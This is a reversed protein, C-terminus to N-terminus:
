CLIIIFKNRVEEKKKKNTGRATNYEYHMLRKKIYIYWYDAISCTKTDDTTFM